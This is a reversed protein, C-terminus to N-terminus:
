HLISNYITFIKTAVSDLDMGQELLKNRGNTRQGSKLLLQIKEAIEDESFSTIYCGEVGKIRAKIDGVDTAIIPCNCAMAEKIIQPSGERISTLLLFDCANLLLNVKERNHAKLEILTLNEIKNCASLALAYNKVPISFASAFLAIKADQELQLTNRCDLKEMPKFVDMDNGCPVIAFNNKANIKMPMDANVFISFRALKNALQSLKRTKISNVDCGHFTIVVPKLFQFSALLGSLGYHAHVLDYDSRWIKKIYALYAMLYGFFGRKKITFYDVQVGLKKLSRVQEEIYTAIKGASSKCVILLKM